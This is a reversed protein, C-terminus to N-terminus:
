GMRSRANTRRVLGVACYLSVALFVFFLVASAGAWAGARDPPWRDPAVASMWAYFFFSTGAYLAAASSLLLGIWLLAGKRKMGPKRSPQRRATFPTQCWFLRREHPRAALLRAMAAAVFRRANQMKTVRGSPTRWSVNLILCRSFHM